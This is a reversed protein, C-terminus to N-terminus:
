SALHVDAATIRRLAGDALRLLLAGSEDLDHFTGTLSEQPLRAVLAQGAKPAWARWRDRVTAFGQAQWRGLWLSFQEMFLPLFAEVGIKTGASALDTVPYPVDSPHSQINVGVGVILSTLKHADGDSELLIGACKCGDILVDNPWKCTLRSPELLGALSEALAVATVFGVQAAAAVPVSPRLLLSLYLNGPPSSWHRGLRGRAKTQTRAWVVLGDAAGDGAAQRAVDMTSSTSELALLRFGSPLKPAAIM